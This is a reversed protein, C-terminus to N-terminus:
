LTVAKVLKGPQQMPLSRHLESTPQPSPINTTPNKSVNEMLQGSGTVNSHVRTTMKGSRPVVKVTSKLAPTLSKSHVGSSELKSSKTSSTPTMSPLSNSKQTSQRTVLTSRTSSVTPALTPITSPQTSHHVTTTDLTLAKVRLSHHQSSKFAGHKAQQSTKLHAHSKRQEVTPSSTHVVVKDMLVNPQPSPTTMSHIPSKYSTTKVQQHFPKSRQKVPESPAPCTSLPRPPYFLFKTKKQVDPLNIVAEQSNYVSLYGNRSLKFSGNFGPLDHMSRNYFLLTRRGARISPITTLDYKQCTVTNGGYQLIHDEWPPDAIHLSNICTTDCIHESNKYILNHGSTKHKFYNYIIPNNEFSLVRRTSSSVALAFSLSGGFMDIITDDKNAFVQIFKTLNDVIEKTPWMKSDLLKNDVNQTTKDEVLVASRTDSGELRVTPLPIGPLNRLGLYKNIVPMLPSLDLTAFSDFTMQSKILTKNFRSITQLTEIDIIDLTDYLQKFQEENMASNGIRYKATPDVYNAILKDSKQTLYRSNVTILNDFLERLPPCGSIESYRSNLKVHYGAYWDNTFYSSVNLLSKFLRPIEPFAILDTPPELYHDRVFHKGLFKFSSAKGPNVVEYEDTLPINISASIEKLQDYLKDSAISDDGAYVGMHSAPDLGAKHCAAFHMFMNVLTNQLSTTASGSAQSSSIDYNFQSTRGSLSQQAAILSSIEIEHSPFLSSLIFILLDSCIKSQHSDFRSADACLIRDTKVVLEHIRHALTAPEVFGYHPCESLWAAAPISFQSMKLVLDAPVDLVIRPYKFTTTYESVIKLVSIPESKIFDSANKNAPDLSEFPRYLIDPDDSIIRKKASSSAEIIESPLAIRGPPPTPISRKLYDLFPGFLSELYAHSYANFVDGLRPELFNSFLSMIKVRKTVMFDQAQKFFNLQTPHHIRLMQKNNRTDFSDQPTVIYNAYYHEPPVPPGTVGLSSALICLGAAFSVSETTMGSLQRIREADMIRVEKADKAHMTIRADNIVQEPYSQVNHAGILYLNYVVKNFEDIEPRFVCMPHNTPTVLRPTRPVPAIYHSVHANPVIVVFRHLQCFSNYTYVKSSTTGYESNTLMNSPYDYVYHNYTDSPGASPYRFTIKSDSGVTWVCQTSKNIVLSGSLEKPYLQHMVIINNRGLINNLQDESLFHDVDSMVVIGGSPLPDDREPRTWDKHFHHKHAGLFKGTTTCDDSLIFIPVASSQQLKTLLGLLKSRTLRRAEALYKHPNTSRISEFAEESKRSITSLFSAIHRQNTTHSKSRYINLMIVNISVYYLNPVLLKVPLMLCTVIFLSYNYYTPKRINFISKIFVIIVRYKMNLLVIAILLTLTPIIISLILEPLHTLNYYCAMYLSYDHSYSCIYHKIPYNLSDSETTRTDYGAYLLISQLYSKSLLLQGVRSFTLSIYEIRSKIQLHELLRTLHSKYGVPNFIMVLYHPFMYAYYGLNFKSYCDSIETSHHGTVLCYTGSWHTMMNDTGTISRYVGYLGNHPYYHNYGVPVPLYSDDLVSSLTHPLEYKCREDSTLFLRAENLMINSFRVTSLQILEIYYRISNFSATANEVVLLDFNNITTNVQPFNVYDTINESYTVNSDLRYPPAAWPSESEHTALIPM